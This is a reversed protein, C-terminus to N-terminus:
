DQVLFTINGNAQRVDNLNSVRAFLTFDILGTNSDLISWNALTYDWVWLSVNGIGSTHGEWTVDVYNIESEKTAMEFKHYVHGTLNTSTYYTDDSSAIEIYSTFEKEGAPSKSLPPKTEVTKNFAQSNFTGSFDYTKEKRMLIISQFINRVFGKTRESLFNIVTPQSIEKTLSALRKLSTDTNIQQIIDPSYGYDRSFTVHETDNINGREDWCVFYITYTNVGINAVRTWQTPSTSLNSMAYFPPNLNNYTQNCDVVGSDDDIATVNYAPSFATPPYNYYTRSEPSNITVSPPDTDHMEYAYVYDDTTDTVWFYTGNQAIGRPAANLNDLFWKSIYNFSTDYKYVWRDGDVIWFFNGDTTIGYPVDNGATLSYAVNYETGDMEYEYVLDDTGDIIWINTGDTTIGRPFANSADLAWSNILNGTNTSFEFVSEPETNDTVFVHKTSSDYTIGYPNDAGDDELGWDAYWQITPSLDYLYVDLVSSGVVIIRQDDSDITIGRVEPTWDLRFSLDGRYDGEASSVSPLLLIVLFGIGIILKIKSQKNM